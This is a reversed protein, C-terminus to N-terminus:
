KGAKARERDVLGQAFQGGGTLLALYMLADRIVEAERLWAFCAALALAIAVQGITTTLWKARHWPRRQDELEAAQAKTIPAGVIPPPLDSTQPPLSSRSLDEIPTTM